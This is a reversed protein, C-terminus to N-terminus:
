PSVIQHGRGPSADLADRVSKEGSHPPSSLHTLPASLSTKYDHLIEVSYELNRSLRWQSAPVVPSHTARFTLDGSHPPSSLHTLPAFLSTKYDHLIEVSYELNRSLRWRYGGSHPPSSLHTLPASLSTKYDHLIEVSYELNRSLRWQSAPVVPSHTLPASLSTRYGGSHPPSSLHTLPAPTDPYEWQLNMNNDPATPPPAVVAMVMLQLRGRTPHSKM